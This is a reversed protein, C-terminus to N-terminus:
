RAAAASKSVGAWKTIEDRVIKGLEAPTSARAEIGHLLLRERTDAANIGRVLEENLRDVVAKAAGEPLLLGYWYNAEFGPVGAEAITPTDRLAPSRQSSAVAIARLKGAKLHPLAAAITDFAIEANGSLLDPMVAASNTYPIANVRVGSLSRFLELELMSLSTRSHAAWRLRAPNSKALAILERVSKAPLSPHIVLVHPANAVLTVPTFDAALDYHLKAAHSAAAAYVTVPAFLLVQGDPEAKSVVEAGFHGEDGPRNEVAYATKSAKQANGVAIRAISDAIGNALFPVVIRM